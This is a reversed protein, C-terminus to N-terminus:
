QTDNLGAKQFCCIIAKVSNMFMMLDYVKVITKKRNKLAPIQM